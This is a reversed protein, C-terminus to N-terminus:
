LRVTYNKMINEVAREVNDGEVADRWIDCTQEAGYGDQETITRKSAVKGLGFRKKWDKNRNIQVDSEDPDQANM